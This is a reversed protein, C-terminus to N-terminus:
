KYYDIKSLNTLNAFNYEEFDIVKNILFNEINSPQINLSEDIKVCIIGYSFVPEHCDRSSHNIRNCNTCFSKKSNM